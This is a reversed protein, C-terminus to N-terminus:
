DGTSARSAMYNAARVNWSGTHDFYYILICSEVYGLM